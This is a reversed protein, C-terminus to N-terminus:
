CAKPLVKAVDDIGPTRLVGHTADRGGIAFSITHLYYAVADAFLKKPPMIQQQELPKLGPPVFGAGDVPTPLVDEAKTLDLPATPDSCLRARKPFPSRSIPWRKSSTTRNRRRHPVSRRPASGTSICRLRERRLFLPQKEDNIIRHIISVFEARNVEAAGSLGLAAVSQLALKRTWHLGEASWGAPPVKDDFLKLFEATVAVRDPQTTQLGCHREIGFLAGIRLTEGLEVTQFAKLLLPFAEPLPVSPKSKLFDPESKDLSGLLILANYRSALSYEAHRDSRCAKSWSATSRTTCEPVQNNDTAGVQRALWRTKTLMRRVESTQSPDSSPWTLEAIHLWALKELTLLDAPGTPKGSTIM